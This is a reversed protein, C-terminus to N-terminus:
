PRTILKYAGFCLIAFASVGFLMWYLPANSTDTDKSKDKTSITVHTTIVKNTLRTVYRKYNTTKSDNKESTKGRDGTETTKSRETLKGTIADYKEVETTKSDKAYETILEKTVEAVQATERDEVQESEEANISEEIKVKSTDSQVKRSGCSIPVLAIATYLAIRILKNKM